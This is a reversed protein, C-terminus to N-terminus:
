ERGPSLVQERLRYDQFDPRFLKLSLVYVAALLLLRVSQLNLGLIGSIATDKCGSESNGLFGKVMLRASKDTESLVPNSDRALVRFSFLTSNIEVPPVASFILSAPMGTLSTDSIVPKRSHRSPRTM